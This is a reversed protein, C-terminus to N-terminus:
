YDGKEEREGNLYLVMYIVKGHSDYERGLGNRKGNLYVGIFYIKGEPTYEKGLGNRKGNSYKGQFKVRNNEYETGNGERTGNRYEGEFTLIGDNNFEKAIGIIKENICEGEFILKNIFDSIIIINKGSVM